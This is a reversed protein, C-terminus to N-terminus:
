RQDPLLRIDHPGTGGSWFEGARRYSDRVNWVGVVGKAAEYDNETTFMWAGDPSYVGHGYFHRGPPASLITRVTGTSCDVVFAFTGPRRAFAVADSLVPHAAAAHGRGPLALNFVMEGRDSLGCLRYSGDAFRAASLLAPNGADAWSTAPYLGMSLLGALFHRRSTM